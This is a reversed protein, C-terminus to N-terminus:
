NNLSSGNDEDWKKKDDSSRDNRSWAKMRNIKSHLNNTNQSIQNLEKCQVWIWSAVSQDVLSNDRPVIGLTSSAVKFM